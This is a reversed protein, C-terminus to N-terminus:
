FGINSEYRDDIKGIYQLSTIVMFALKQEVEGFCALAGPEGQICALRCGSLKLGYQVM